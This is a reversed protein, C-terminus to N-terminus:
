GRVNRWTMTTDERQIKFFVSMNEKWSPNGLSEGPWLLLLLPHPSTGVRLLYLRISKRIRMIEVGFILGNLYDTNFLNLAFPMKRM